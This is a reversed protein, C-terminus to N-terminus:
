LMTMRKGHYEALEERFWQPQPENWKQCFRLGNKLFMWKQDGEGYTAPPHWLHLEIEDRFVSEIGHATTNRCMDTDAWVYGHYEEDMKGVRMYDAKTIATNGSWMNRMGIAATDSRHEDKFDFTRNIIEEDTAPRTLKLMNRTTIQIGDKLQDLVAKFYGAPLLRDSELIIIKSAKAREVGFNTLHPLQMCEVELNYHAYDGFHNNIEDCYDQCVLVLQSNSIVDRHDRGLARLTQLLNDMRATHFIIVFSAWM